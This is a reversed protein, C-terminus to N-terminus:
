FVGTHKGTATERSRWVQQTIRYTSLYNLEGTSPEGMRIEEWRKSGGM